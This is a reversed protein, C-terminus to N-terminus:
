PTVHRIRHVHVNKDVSNATFAQIASRSAATAMFDWQVAQFHFM